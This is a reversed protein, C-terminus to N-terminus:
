QKDLRILFGGGPALHIKIEDNKKVSVDKQIVYDAAYRDANVGDKCITAKYIGDKLFDFKVVLDREDWNSMGAVFWDNGKQRASVIYKGVKADTIITEDWATPLNGLLEMFEPERMGESPNGSFIQMPSDYVVFMSLQHCRTGPSTVVGAVPRTGKKTANNLLGPEYDFGGALMRTFPLTVDHEPTVKNSGINYESGMVGERAVANPYTRNFGKPPFAGHYMIMIKHAACAKAIRHYFNVTKQDDRDIFDTMIFDVGWKNFQNLASDLQRDLTRSLTWMSIKIGKEKAYAVLTDMSITPTIKFLDNNDSWGADMMIRDFGFRKAFDIYYKYSATNLGARFPVNFLNIDITWEDTLNGPKVWSADGIRSPAGLRYVLDNGPLEKDEAAILLVRWPFSRKGSTRAIYPARKTVKMESYFDKTAEEELPYGAFVGKLTSTGTGGIFMGPYDELDSETIAIKPDTEPAVLIPSYGLVGDAISDLKRLPYEEEFSTHFIDADARKKVEPFYASPKGPFNFEAVENNIYSSDKFSTSIRYAVGDDYVRFEVKYPQKFNITLLNYVDPVIRRKEAVPSIIQERIKKISSSKISNNASLSRNKDLLLDISSPELITKNDYFVQYKCLQGMWVKVSIKGSPSFVQLTDKSWGKGYIVIFIFFLLYSKKKYQNIHKM